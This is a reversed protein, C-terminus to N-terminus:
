YEEKEQYAELFGIYDGDELLVNTDWTNDIIEWEPIHSAYLSDYKVFFLGEDNKYIHYYTISGGEYTNFVEEMSEFDYDETIEEYGTYNHDDLLFLARNNNGDHYLYALCKHEIDSIFIREKLEEDAYIERDSLYEIQSGRGTLSTGRESINTGDSTYWCDEQIEYAPEESSEDQKEYLMGCNYLTVLTWNSFSLIKGTDLNKFFRKEM